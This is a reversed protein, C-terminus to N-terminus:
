NQFESKWEEESTKHVDTIWVRVGSKLKTKGDNRTTDVYSLTGIQYGGIFAKGGRAFQKSCIDEILEKNYNELLMKNRPTSTYYGDQIYDETALRFNVGLLRGDLIVVKKGELAKIEKIKEENIEDHILFGTINQASKVYQTIRKNEILDLFQLAGTPFLNLVSSLKAYQYKTTKDKINKLLVEDHRPSFGTVLEFNKIANEFNEDDIRKARTSQNKMIERWLLAFAFADGLSSSGARFLDAQGKYYAMIRAKRDYLISIENNLEKSLLKLQRVKDLIWRDSLANFDMKYGNQYLLQKFMEIYENIDNSVEAIANTFQYLLLGPSSEGKNLTKKKLLIDTYENSFFYVDKETILNNTLGLNILSEVDSLFHNYYESSLNNNKIKEEIYSEIEDTSNNLNSKWKVGKLQKKAKFLYSDAKLGTIFSGDVDTARPLIVDVNYQKLLENMDYDKM